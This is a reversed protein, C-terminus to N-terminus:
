LLFGSHINTEMYVNYMSVRFPCTGKNALAGGNSLHFRESTLKMIDEEATYIVPTSEGTMVIMAFTSLLSMPCTPQDSWTSYGGKPPHPGGM